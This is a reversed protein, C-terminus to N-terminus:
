PRLLAIPIGSPDVLRETRARNTESRTEESDAARASRAESGTEPARRAGPGTERGPQAGDGSPPEAEEARYLSFEALGIPVFQDTRPTARHWVNYGL